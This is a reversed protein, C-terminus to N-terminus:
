KQSIQVTVSAGVLNSYSPLLGLVDMKNRAVVTFGTNTITTVKLFQTDSGGILTPQIDPVIGTPFAPSFAITYNGSADTVGSYLDVRKLAATLQGIKIYRGTGGMGTAALVAEGDATTIAAAVYYYFRPLSDGEVTDGYVTFEQGDVASNFGVLDAKTDASVGVRVGM